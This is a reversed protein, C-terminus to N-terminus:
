RFSVNESASRQLAWDRPLRRCTEIGRHLMLCQKLTGYAPARDKARREMGSGIASLIPSAYRVRWDHRHVNDSASPMLGDSSIHTAPYRSLRASEANNPAGEVLPHM